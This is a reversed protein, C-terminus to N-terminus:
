PFSCEFIQLSQAIFLLLKKHMNPMSIPVFVVQKLDGDNGYYIYNWGGIVRHITFQISESSSIMSNIEMELLQKKTIEM